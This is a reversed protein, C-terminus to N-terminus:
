DSDDTDFRNTAASDGAYRNLRALAERKMQLKMQSYKKFVKADTQRLMQTVWEDAVGGASLRTAYTSRLDYLRFQPVGARRLTREWTKKLDVQHETPRRSSPFLWPGPGALKLQDQFAELAIDTLPVESIGTPTKSDMIFVVRNAIDVQEKKMCALEKYIRLGTETIIRMVNRLYAPAHKEIEAQESWTMYHPRFLGKVMVPFEVASCPNSPLLKKKVAVSFIRRLVRFEQHVTTAKLTGVEAIGGRRRVLRKAQLRSRLHVEIENPGIDLRKRIGFAPRLTKLATENAQHTKRARIPPTSYNVLFFDAWENFTLNKGKRLVELSNSDRAALRDRLQRQAEDWDATNTSELRRTGDKDRYRMWWINSDNRRYVVGDHKRPRAM